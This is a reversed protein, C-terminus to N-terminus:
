RSAISADIKAAPKMVGAILRTAPRLRGFAPSPANANSGSLLFSDNGDPCAVLANATADTNAACESPQTTGVIAYVSAVPTATDRMFSLTCQADSTMAPAAIPVATPREITARCLRAAVVLAFGDRMSQVIM